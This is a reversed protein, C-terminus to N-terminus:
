AQPVVPQDRDRLRNLDDRLRDVEERLRVLEPPTKADIRIRQAAETADRRLRGDSEATALRDLVPLLRADALRECAAYTSLRVMYSPDDLAAALADVVATRVTDVLTGLRALAGVAARRLPEPRDPRSAAV